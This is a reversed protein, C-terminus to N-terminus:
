HKQETSQSALHSSTAAAVKDLRRCLSRSKDPRSLLQAVQETRPDQALLPSQQLFPNCLADHYAAHLAKFILVIDTDKLFEDTQDLAIVMKVRTPTLYGYVCVDELVYLMGLFCETAKPNAAVVLDVM